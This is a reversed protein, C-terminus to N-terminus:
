NNKIIPQIGKMQKVSLQVNEIDKFSIPELNIRIKENLLQKLEAKFNVLNEDKVRFGNLKEDFIGWKRILQSRTEEIAELETQIIKLLKNLKYSLLVPLTKEVMESLPQKIDFINLVTLEIM